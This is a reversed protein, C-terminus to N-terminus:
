SISRRALFSPLGAIFGLVYATERVAIICLIRLFYGPKKTKWVVDTTKAIFYAAITCIWLVAFLKEGLSLYALIITYAVLLLPAIDMFSLMDKHLKLLDVRAKGNRYIQGFVGGISNRRTHNVNTKQNFKIKYGNKQLRHLFEPEQLGKLNENFNHKSFINKRFVINCARLRRCAQKGYLATKETRAKDIMFVANQFKTSKKEDIVDDGGVVDLNESEVDAALSSTWNRPATCDDDIFFVLNGKAAKAGACYANGITNKKDEVWKCDHKKATGRASDNNPSVVIIEDIKKTQIKLSQICRELAASNGRTPVVASMRM